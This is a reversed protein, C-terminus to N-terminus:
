TNYVKGRSYNPDLPHFQRVNLVQRFFVLTNYVVKNFYFRIALDGHGPVKRELPLIQRLANVFGGVKMWGSSSENMQSSFFNDTM